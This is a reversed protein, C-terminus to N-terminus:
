FLEKFFSCITDTLGKKDRVVMGDLNQLSKITNNTKRSSSFSHFFVKLPIIQRKSPFFSHFFKTNEDGFKLWEIRSRQQWYVEEHALLEDLTDEMKKLNAMSATSCATANNLDEVSKQIAKIKKKM